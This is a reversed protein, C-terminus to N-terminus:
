WTRMTPFCQMHQTDSFLACPPYRARAPNHQVTSSRPRMLVRLRSIHCLRPNHYQDANRPRLLSSVQHCFYSNMFYMTLALTMVKEGHDYPPGCLSTSGITRSTNLRDDDDDMYHWCSGGFINCREGCRCSFRVLGACLQVAWILPVAASCRFHDEHVGGHKTPCRASNDRDIM